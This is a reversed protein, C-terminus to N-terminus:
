RCWASSRGYAARAATASRYDMFRRLESGTDSSRQDTHIELRDLHPAAVAYRPPSGTPAPTSRGTRPRRRSWCASATGTRRPEAIPEHLQLGPTPRSTSPPRTPTPATPPRCESIGALPPRSELGTRPPRQAPPAAPPGTHRPQGPPVLHRPTSPAPARSRSAIARPRVSGAPLGRVAQHVRISPRRLVIAESVIANWKRGQHINEWFQSSFASHPCNRSNRRICQATAASPTSMRGRLVSPPTRVAHGAAGAM